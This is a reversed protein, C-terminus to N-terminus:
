IVLKQNNLNEVKIDDGCAKGAVSRPVGKRDSEIGSDETKVTGIM